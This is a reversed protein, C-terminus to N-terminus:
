IKSRVYSPMHEPKILIKWVEITEAPLDVEDDMAHFIVNMCETNDLCELTLRALGDRTIAGVDTLDNSLRAKGSEQIALPLLTLHRIITYPVGSGILIEEAIAKSALALRQVEYANEAYVLEASDGVGIAGHLILQQVGTAAAWKSVIRQSEDYFSQAELLQDTATAMERYPGSSADVVARYSVDTFVREMDAEVLMDGIAYTIDLGELRARDSTSRALVTISEGAAVLDKAVESGLEGTGGLVLVEGKATISM